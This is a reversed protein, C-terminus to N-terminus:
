YIIKVYNSGGTTKKSFYLKCKKLQLDGDIHDVRIDDTKLIKFGKKRILGSISKVWGIKEKTRWHNLEILHSKRFFLAHNIKLYYLNIGNINKYDKLKQLIYPYPVSNRKLMIAGITKDEEMVGVLKNIFDETLPIFDNDLQLIYKSNEHSANFGDLMGGADGTNYENYVVKINYFNEKEISKLWDKTGDTSCQEIIIHEYDAGGAKIQTERVCMVTYELRNFARTIISVKNM